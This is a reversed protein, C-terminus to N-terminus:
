NAHHREFLRNVAALSLNPNNSAAHELTVNAAALAFGSSKDLPWENLWAYALGALFADGAGAANRIDVTCDSLNKIGQAQDTSYFVGRVGLTIFLRQVGREHFWDALAPLESDARAAFGALTEAESLSPKLTHISSLHPKIRIAKATSVTDVFLPQDAFTGTLWALADENLNTDIIILAATRLMREHVRLREPGLEDIISMDSIAVHMDGSADLVSVYTSTQASELQLVYRMNIGAARGQQLLVQGHYDSGVVSLLRCDIGLRALNEAVNRAVGGPSTRVKGPNSDQLRLSEIPAGHIDMNSGGIVAVFPADSFVYGRGKIHGRATLRMIHGAVTSRSIGLRTAIAQQSMQPDDHILALIQQERNSLKLCTNEICVITGITASTVRANM